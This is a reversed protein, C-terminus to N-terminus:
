LFSLGLKKIFLFYPKGGGQLVTFMDKKMCLKKFVSFFYINEIQVISFM